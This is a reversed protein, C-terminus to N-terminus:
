KIIIFKRVSRTKGTRLSCIYVGQGYRSANFDKIYHGAEWLGEALIVVEKGAMDFIKLTIDSKVALTFEIHTIGNAPNPYISVINNKIPMSATFANIITNWVENYAGQYSLAWIGIGGLKQSKAYEYKIMLSESDDYWLQRWTSSPMYRVWPVKTLYDLIKSYEEALTEAAAMTRSTGTGTATSKRANDVVPWDYGYWPVGLLLKGPAVGANLYTEVTKSVSYNENSLPAVPGATSSGSWYYNYGMVILYDCIESLTKLDWSGSWDVAPTAMSIEALPLEAKIMTVARQMFRVLNNKQSLGVSELDFNVGDGKRAVLLPILTNLLYIQKITDSLLETNKQTGFNTVTLLVKTGRQHAYDIIPNADWSRITTYGGTATDVEYSFYAIHSLANYDYSQYATSAAWYPHWGLVRSTLSKALITVLESPAATSKEGSFKEAPHINSYFESEEQHIGKRQPENYQSYLYCPLLCFFIIILTKPCYKIYSAPM